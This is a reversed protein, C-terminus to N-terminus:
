WLLLEQLGFVNNQIMINVLIKRKSPFFEEELMHFVFGIWIDVQVELM